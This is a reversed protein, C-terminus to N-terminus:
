GAIDGALKALAEHTIAFPVQDRGPAAKAATYRRVAARTLGHLRVEYYSLGEGKRAPVESRLVAEARTDDVEYLRLSEMLGSVRDAVADAWGKLTLGAPADATRTLTLEWVLCSLSDVKDTTIHVIWGADPFAESWSHRGASAPRWESLKPLLKEALTM